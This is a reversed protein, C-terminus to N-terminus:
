NEKGSDVGTNKIAKWTRREPAGVALWREVEAVSWRVCRGLNVPPPLKGSSNMRRIHRVSVDLYKALREAGLAGRSRVPEQVTQTQM